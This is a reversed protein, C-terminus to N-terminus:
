PDRKTQDSPSKKLVSSIMGIRDDVTLCFIPSQARLVERVTTRQAMVTLSRNVSIPLFAILPTAESLHRPATVSGNLCRTLLRIPALPHFALACAGNGGDRHMSPPSSITWNHRTRSGRATQDRSAAVKSSM